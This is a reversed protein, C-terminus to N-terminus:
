GWTWVKPYTRLRFAKSSAFGLGILSRRLPAVLSSCLSRLDPYSAYSPLRHSSSAARVSLSLRLRMSPAFGPLPREYAPAFSGATDSATRPWAPHTHRSGPIPQVGLTSFPRSVLVFQDTWTTCALSYIDIFVAWTSATDLRNILGLLNHGFVVISIAQTWVKPDLLTGRALSLPLASSSACSRQKDSPAATGLNVGYPTCTSTQAVVGHRRCAAGYVNIKLM